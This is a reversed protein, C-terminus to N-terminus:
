IRGNGDNRELNNVGIFEDIVAKGSQAAPGKIIVNENFDNTIFFMETNVVGGSTIARATSIGRMIWDNTILFTEIACVGSALGIKGEAVCPLTNQATLTMNCPIMVNILRELEEVQGSAGWETVIELLYSGPEMTLTFPEGNAIATLM